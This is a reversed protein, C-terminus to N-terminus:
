PRRELTVHYEPGATSMVFNQVVLEANEEARKLIGKELAKYCYTFHLNNPVAVYVTDIGTGCLEELDHAAYPIGYEKSLAEAKEYGTPSGMISVIELGDMKVLGPLFDKVIWGTGIIGLKM